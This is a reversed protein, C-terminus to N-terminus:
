ISKLRHYGLSYVLCHPLLAKSIPSATVVQWITTDRKERYDSVLLLLRTISVHMFALLGKRRGLSRNMHTKLVVPTAPATRCVGKHNNLEILEHVLDDKEEM